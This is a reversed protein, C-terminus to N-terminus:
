DIDGLAFEGQINLFALYIKKTQDGKTLKLEWVYWQGESEEETIFKIFEYKYPIIKKQIRRRISRVREMDNPDSTNCVDKWRREQDDGRYVIFEALRIDQEEKCLEFIQHIVGKVQEAEKNNQAFLASFLFLLGITLLYKM